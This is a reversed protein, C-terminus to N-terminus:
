SGATAGLGGEGGCPGPANRAREEHGQEDQEPDAVAIGVGLDVPQGVLNPRQADETIGLTPHVLREAIALQHVSVLPDAPVRAPPAEHTRREDTWPLQDLSRQVVNRARHNSSCFM